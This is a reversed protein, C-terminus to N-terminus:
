KESGIPWNGRTGHQLALIPGHGNTTEVKSDGHSEPVLFLFMKSVKGGLILCSRKQSKFISQQSLMNRIKTSNWVSWAHWSVTYSTYPVRPFVWQIIKHNLEFDNIWEYMNKEGPTKDVTRPLLITNQAGSRFVKPTSSTFPDLLFGKQFIM